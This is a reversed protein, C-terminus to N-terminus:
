SILILHLKIDLKVLPKFKRIFLPQLVVQRRISTSATTSALAQSPHQGGAQLKTNYQQVVAPCSTVQHQRHHEFCSTRSAPMTGATARRIATRSCSLKDGPAPAPAPPPASLKKHQCKTHQQTNHHSLKIQTLQVVRIPHHVNSQTSVRSRHPM